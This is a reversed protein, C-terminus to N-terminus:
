ETSPSLAWYAEAQKRLIPRRYHSRIVAVSNGMLEALEARNSHIALWYSAYSHRMIDEVWRRQGEASGYGASERVSKWRPRLKKGAVLGSAKAFPKLWRILTPEMKVFRSDRTKSTHALVEIAESEFHVQAWDLQEAEGPRLGAFLCIAAYPVVVERYKSREAKTLLEAAAEVTFIQTDTRKARIEVEGCPNVAIWGKSRCFNFFKSLRLRVNIRTRASGPFSDVYTKVTDGTVEGIHLSGLVSKTQQSRYRVEQISRLALEGRVHDAERKLLYEDLCHGVLLTEKREKEATLWALYHETADRLTKGFPKLKELCEVAMVRNETSFNLAEVGRNERLTALTDARTRAEGIREFYERKGHPRADVMFTSMNAPRMDLIRPWEKRMVPCKPKKMRLITDRVIEDTLPSGATEGSLDKM